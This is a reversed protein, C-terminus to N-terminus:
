KQSAMSSLRGSPQGTVLQFEPASARIFRELREYTLQETGPLCTVFYSIYAWRELEGKRLVTKWMSWLRSGEESTIKDGSVFWYVYFCNVTQGSTRLQRSATLKVAPIDYAIPRDMHLKIRETSSVNWDQAYLCYQPQHISTHDTGMLVVSLQVGFDGEPSRYYRRGFTTDSPLATVETTTVPLPRSPIGLVVAPLVVSQSSVLSSKEDYIPVHGVKVGPAGLLHRGQLERLWGATAAIMGLAVGFVIWKSSKMAVGGVTKGEAM